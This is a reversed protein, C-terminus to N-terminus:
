RLAIVEQVFTVPAYPNYRFVKPRVFTFPLGLVAVQLFVDEYLPPQQTVIDHDM